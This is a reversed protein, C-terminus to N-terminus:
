KRDAFFAVAVAGPGVHAGIASGIMCVPIDETRKEYLQRSDALYKQLLEDSLGSYALCYPMSFDIGGTKEVFQRLLNNGNKSGRAKGVLVVEGNEVAVVPKISLIGGAFAVTPSIRGGKKLYELTDLLALLRVRKKQEEIAAAIEKMTSGQDRMRAALLVLLREGICVNESDVVTVCDRYDELAISASSWCGSLKSSITICVAEDGADRVTRFIQEYQYATIQSTHPPADTEILKEFFERNTMTVGDLFEEDGFFTTLPILEINLERAQEQTIDCASDVIIRIRM